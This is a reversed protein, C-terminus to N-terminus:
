RLKASLASNIAANLAENTLITLQVGDVYITPTSEIGYMQGDEIDHRVEPAYTGKDLAADFQVRNLGIESAYKKLSAIDLASQRKFLLATYEFFKGQAHAANAAEAAKRANAHMPLPFDRVVLKVKGAYAKLAQELLPQMAACAPCQFDTFEVITVAATAEGKLPDDDVSITLAPPEPETILLRISAGKRLRESLQKQLRSEEQEQLYAAIQNRVTDLDANIRPKNEDYFAVVEAETPAHLKDTVEARVIEEPPVKRRSAEALLLLDNTTKEIAEKTVRYTSFRLRYIVPKLREALMATTIPQGAVTALVTAPALGAMNPNAGMIVSNTSRLRQVFEESLKTERESRLYGALRDRDANSDLQDRNETVFRSIEAETPESVRKSVELDYLQQSSIRRKRAEADLLLTNIQVELIQRQADAIQKNLTAFQRAVEPDIDATTITQGDVQALQVPESAQVLSEPSPTSQPTSQSIPPRPTAAKKASRRPAQGGFFLVSALFLVITTM